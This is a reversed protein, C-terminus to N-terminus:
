DHKCLIKQLADFTLGLAKRAQAKSDYTVGNLTVPTGMKKRAADYGQQKREPSGIIEIAQARIAAHMEPPAWIGRVEALGAAAKRARHAAVRPASPTTM